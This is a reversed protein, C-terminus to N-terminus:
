VLPFEGMDKLYVDSLKKIDDQDSESVSDYVGAIRFGEASATKISYLGDEFVWTNQIETGMADIAAMFIEPQDKTAGIEDCTLIADFYDTMGLRDFAGMICERETSTAVSMRVGAAKMRNLLSLVGPKPEAEERYFAGMDDNIGQRIENESEPLGYTKKLYEAGITVTTAFLKDGLGEEAEIGKHELYRVASDHWVPMTDLLVGDVDFIAGDIKM